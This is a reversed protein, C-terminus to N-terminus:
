TQKLHLRQIFPTWHEDFEDLVDSTEEDIDPDKAFSSILAFDATDSGVVIVDPQIHAVLQFMVEMAAKHEFPFHVDAIHMVTIHRKGNALDHLAEVWPGQDTSMDIHYIDTLPAPQHNNLFSPAPLSYSPKLVSMAQQLAQATADEQFINRRIKRHEQIRRALSKPTIEVHLDEVARM